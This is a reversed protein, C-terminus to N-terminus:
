GDKLGSPKRRLNAFAALPWARLSQYLWCRQNANCVLFLAPISIAVISTACVVGLDVPSRVTVLRTIVTSTVYSLAGMVLGIGYARVLFRWVSVGLERSALIPVYIGFTAYEAIGLAIAAGFAGIFPVLALCLALSAFVQALAARALPRPRNSYQLAAASAHAPATLFIVTLFAGFVWPDFPVKGRTWFGVFPESVAISLGSFMGILGGIAWGTDEYLNKRGELDEQAYQRSMEIGSVRSVQHAIQRIVSTLTRTITFIVVASATPALVALLLIPARILVIESLTPVSYHRAQDLLDLAEHRSPFALGFDIDPYRLSQDLVVVAMGVLFATALYIVAIHLPSASISLAVGTAVTQVLVYFANIMEGRAFDGRAAYIALIFNRPLMVLTTLALFTLTLSNYPSAANTAGLMAPFDAFSILVVLLCAMASLLIAYLGVGVKLTRSFLSLDSRAWAIRLINATYYNLGLDILRLVDAAALLILWDEYLGGSWHGLFLPVLCLQQATVAAFSFGQAGVGLLLRRRLGANDRADGSKRITRHKVM